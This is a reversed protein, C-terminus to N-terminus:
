SRRILFSLVFANRDMGGKAGTGSVAFEVSGPVVQDITAGLWHSMCAFLSWVTGQATMEKRRQEMLEANRKRDAEEKEKKAKAEAERKEKLRKIAEEREM